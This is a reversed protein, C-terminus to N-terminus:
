QLREGMENWEEILMATANRDVLQEGTKKNFASADRFGTRPRERCMPNVCGLAQKESKTESIRISFIDAPRVIWDPNSNCFPCRKLGM